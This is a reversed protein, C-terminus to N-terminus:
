VGHKYIKNQMKKEQPSPNEQEKIKAQRGDTVYQGRQMAVFAPVFLIV